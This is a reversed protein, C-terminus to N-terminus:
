YVGHFGGHAEAPHFPIGLFAKEEIAFVQPQIPGIGVLVMCAPGVRHAIGGQVPIHFHNLFGTHVEDAAGM